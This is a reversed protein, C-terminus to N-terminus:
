ASLVVTVRFAPLTTRMSRRYTGYYQEIIFAGTGREGTQSPAPAKKDKPNHWRAGLFIM